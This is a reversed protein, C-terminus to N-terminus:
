EGTEKEKKVLCIGIIFMIMAAAFGSAGLIARPVENDVVNVGCYVASFFAAL